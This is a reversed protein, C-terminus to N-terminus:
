NQNCASHLEIYNRERSLIIIMETENIMYINKPSLFVLKGKRYKGAEQNIACIKIEGGVGFSRLVKGIFFSGESTYFYSIIPLILGFVIILCMFKQFVKGFVLFALYLSVFFTFIYLFLMRMFISKVDINDSSILYMIPLIFILITSIINVYYLFNLKSFKIKNILLVILVAFGGNLIFSYILTFIIILSTFINLASLGDNTFFDYSFFGYNQMYLVFPMYIYVSLIYTFIVSNILSLFLSKSTIVDKM